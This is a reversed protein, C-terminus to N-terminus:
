RSEIKTCLPTSPIPLESLDVSAALAKAANCILKRNEGNGDSSLYHNQNYIWRHVHGLNLPDKVVGIFVMESSSVLSLHTTLLLLLSATFM